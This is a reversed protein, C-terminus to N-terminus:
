DGSSPVEEWDGDQSRTRRRAEIRKNREIRDFTEFLIAGSTADIAFRHISTGFRHDFLRTAQWVLPTGAISRFSLLISYDEGLGDLIPERRIIEAVKTSDIWDNSVPTSRPMEAAIVAPETRGRFSLNGNFFLWAEIFDTGQGTRYTFHWAGAGAHLRGDHRIAGEGFAGALFWTSQFKSMFPRVIDFAERASLDPRPVMLARAPPLHLREATTPPKTGVKSGGQSLLDATHHQALHPSLWEYALLRLLQAFRYAPKQRSATATDFQQLLPEIAENPAFSTLARLDLQDREIAQEPEWWCAFSDRSGDPQVVAFSWGYDEAYNYHLVVTGLVRSLQQAFSSGQSFCKLDEYPIFTLWGNSPGFVIGALRARRLRQKTDAPDNTRIHYSESFESM